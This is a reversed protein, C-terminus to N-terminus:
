NKRPYTSLFISLNKHTMEKFVTKILEENEQLKFNNSSDTTCQVWKFVNSLLSILIRLALSLLFGMILAIAQM